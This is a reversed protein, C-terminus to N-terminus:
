LGTLIQCYGTIKCGVTFCTNGVECKLANMSEPSYTAEKTLAITGAVMTVQAQNRSKADHPGNLKNNIKQEVTLPKEGPAETKREGWVDVSGFELKIHICHVLFAVKHIDM